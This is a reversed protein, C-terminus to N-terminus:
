GVVKPPKEGGLGLGFSMFIEVGDIMPNTISMTNKRRRKLM